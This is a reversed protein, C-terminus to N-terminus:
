QSVPQSQALPKHQQTLWHRSLSLVQLAVARMLTAAICISIMQMLIPVRAFAGIGSVTGKLNPEKM